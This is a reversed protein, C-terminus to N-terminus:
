VLQNTLPSLILPCKVSARVVDAHAFVCSLGASLTGGDSLAAAIADRLKSEERRNLTFHLTCHSTSHTCVLLKSSASTHRGHAKKARKWRSLVEVAGM